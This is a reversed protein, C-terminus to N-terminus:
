FGYSSRPFFGVTDLVLGYDESHQLSVKITDTPIQSYGAIALLSSLAIICIKKM